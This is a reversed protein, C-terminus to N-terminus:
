EVMIYILFLVFVLFSLSGFLMGWALNRIIPRADFMVIKLYLGGILGSFFTVVILSSYDHVGKFSFLLLFNLGFTLLFFIIRAIWTHM